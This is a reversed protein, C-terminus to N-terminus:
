YVEVDRISGTALQHRFEFRAGNAEKLAEEVDETADATIDSVNLGKLNATSSLYFAQAMPNADVITGDQPDILLQLAQNGVFMQRYLDESGKLAEALGEWEQEKDRVARGYAILFEILPRTTTDLVDSLKVDPDTRTHAELAIKHIRGIEETPLGSTLAARGLGQLDLLPAEGRQQVYRQLLDVYHERIAQHVTDPTM